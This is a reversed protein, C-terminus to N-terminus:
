TPTSYVKIEETAMVKEGKTRLCPANAAEDMRVCISNWNDVAKIQVLGDVESGLSLM